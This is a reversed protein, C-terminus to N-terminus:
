WVHNCVKALMRAEHRMEEEGDTSSSRNRNGDDIALASAATVGSDASGNSSAAAAVYAVSVKLEKVAVDMGRWRARRVIGFSGEGIVQDVHVEEPKLEKFEDGRGGNGAGNSGDVSSGGNGQLMRM